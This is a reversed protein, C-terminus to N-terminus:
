GLILLDLSEIAFANTHKIPPLTMETKIISVKQAKLLSEVARKIDGQSGWFDLGRHGPDQQILSEVESIVESKLTTM